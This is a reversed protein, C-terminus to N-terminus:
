PRTQDLWREELHNPAQGYRPCPLLGTPSLSVGAIGEEKIFQMRRHLFWRWADPKLHVVARAGGDVEEGARVIVVVEGACETGSHQEAWVVGDTTPYVAHWLGDRLSISTPACPGNALFAEVDEEEAREPIGVLVVTGGPGKSPGRPALDM